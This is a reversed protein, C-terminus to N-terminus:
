KVPILPSRLTVMADQIWDGSMAFLTMAIVPTAGDVKSFRIKKLAGLGDM